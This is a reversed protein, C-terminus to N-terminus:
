SKSLSYYNLLSILVISEIFSTYGCCVENELLFSSVRDHSYMISPPSSSSTFSDLGIDETDFVDISSPMFYSATCCFSLEM